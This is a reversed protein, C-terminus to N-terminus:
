IGTPTSRTPISIATPHWAPGAGLPRPVRSVGAAVASSRGQLGRGGARSGRLLAASARVGGASRVGTRPLVALRDQRAGRARGRGRAAAPTRGGRLIKRDALSVARADR